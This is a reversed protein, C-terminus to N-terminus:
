LFIPVNKLSDKKIRQFDLDLLKAQLADNCLSTLGKCYKDSENILTSSKAM